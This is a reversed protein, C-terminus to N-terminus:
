FFILTSIKFVTVMKPNAAATQVVVEKRGCAIFVIFVFFVEPMDNYMYESKAKPVENHSKNPKNLELMGMMAAFAM